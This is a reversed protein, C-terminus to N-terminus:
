RGRLRSFTSKLFNWARAWTARLTVLVTIAFGIVIQFIYSGNGPDLYASAQSPFAAVAVMAAAMVNAWAM